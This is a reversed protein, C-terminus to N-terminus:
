FRVDFGLWKDFIVAAASRVSLHNFDCFGALPPLFYDCRDLLDQGMGYGTGLLILVPRDYAWIKAQDHYTIMNNVGHEFRASTGLILPKKGEKQEIAAIADDLQSVVNVRSVAQHRSPNYAIGLDKEQWFNLITNVIKQQDQLPTVIFYNRFNYTASSRAIDHVDISTVSTTGVRGDKLAIGTHMLAVYHPPIFQSAQVKDQKSLPWARLWDFHKKVTASMAQVTRWTQIAKHDGSRLVEPVTLDMWEVPKTYEPYDVMPGSFSDLQVSESKGVIGPMHRLLCEMLLMAPIDGGMTVFDGVSVVADAYVQQVRADIGEYRGALFMVHDHDKIKDWLEKSYPQTLKEGQPSLFIKFSKGHMSDLDDVARQVVEPRILMGSNHGFTAGDIREKPAVYDFLTKISFSLAKNQTARKILSTQIFPQYLEPFLTLISINM